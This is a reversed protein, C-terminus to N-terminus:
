LWREGSWLERPTAPRQAAISLLVGVALSVALLSSGGASVLPLTLGTAPFLRLNVAVHVLAQVLIWSTLGAALLQGFEDPARRAAEFGRWAILGFLTLVGLTGALGLDEGVQAFVFDSSRASVYALASGGQHFLGAGALGGSGIAIEAQKMSFGSGLPDRGPEFFVALRERQYDPVAAFLMPGAGAGAAALGGLAHWPAGCVVLFMLWSAFLVVATGTDPELLVLAVVLGTLATTAALLRAGRARGALLSAFVVPLALKAFESPQVTLPGLGLWRTSGHETVGLALVVVLLVVAGLYLPRALRRLLRYDARSAGLMLALGALAITLQRLGPGTRVTPPQGPGSAASTVMLVGLALLAVAPLLLWVDIRAGLRV